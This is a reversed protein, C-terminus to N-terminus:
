SELGVVKLVNPWAQLAAHLTPDHVTALAEAYADTIV